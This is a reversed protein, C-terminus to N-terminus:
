TTLHNPWSFQIFDMMIMAKSYQIEEYRKQIKEWPKQNLESWNAGFRERNAHARIISALDHM